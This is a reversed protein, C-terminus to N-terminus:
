TYLHVFETPTMKKIKKFQRNFNSINNFGSDYCISIVKQKGEILLKCAYGIRIENLYTTFNKRHIRKFFRSFASPNMNIVTAVDIASIPQNFNKFIYEYIVKLNKNDGESFSTLFGKSSLVSYEKHTALRDLVDLLLLLKKFPVITKDKEIRKLLQITEKSLNHFVLGLQAKQILNNIQRLEKASMFDEGLFDKKFHISIADAQLISEAHYYAEDNIWMHPLNSGILVVDGKNFKEISDGVFRTGTSKLVLVLELEPHYHWVKLFHKHKNRTVSFSNFQTNTRDLYHLKM